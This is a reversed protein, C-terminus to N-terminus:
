EALLREITTEIEKQYKKTSGQYTKIIFGKKDILYSTPMVKVGYAEASKGERDFGITFTVPYKKLFAAVDAPSEDLAIAIVEFGKDKYRGQLTNMWPFSKRCPICWSAWFDLYVVKGHFKALDVTGNTGPMQFRLAKDASSASSSYFFLSLLCSIIITTATRKLM